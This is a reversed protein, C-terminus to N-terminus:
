NRINQLFTCADKTSVYVTPRLLLSPNRQDDATAAMGAPDDATPTPAAATAIGAIIATMAARDATTIDTMPREAETNKM